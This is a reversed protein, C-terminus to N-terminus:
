LRDACSLQHSRLEVKSAEFLDANYEAYSSHSLGGPLDMGVCFTNQCTQGRGILRMSLVARSNVSLHDRNYPDTVHPVM